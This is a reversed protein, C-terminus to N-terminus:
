TASVPQDALRANRYAKRFVDIADWASIVAVSLAIIVITPRLWDGGGLQEAADVVAPNFLLGELLLWLAPIAFAADLVANLTALTWTWRGRLYVVATLGVELGIVVLFWPLWFSWLAPDFLPVPQGDVVIPPSVQQWVIVVAVVLSAILSGILEPAGVREPAPVPPLDDPSWPKTPLAEGDATREAIALGLSVWFLVQITAIFGSSIAGFIVQGITAGELLRAIGTVVAAITVVIPLLLTVLRRWLPYFQPGILYLPRGSYRAALREPDGLEILAAREAAPEDTAGAALRAEVADAVLARIEPELDARQREPIARLVAWVYRDTLSSM